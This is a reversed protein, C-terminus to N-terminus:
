RFYFWRRVIQNAQPGSLPYHTLKHQQTKASSRLIHSNMALAIFARSIALGRICTLPDTKFEGAVKSISLLKITM